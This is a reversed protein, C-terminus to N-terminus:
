PSVEDVRYNVIYSQLGTAPDRGPLSCQLAYSGWNTTNMPGFVVLGGGPPVVATQTATKFGDIDHASLECAGSVTAHRNRMLLKVEALRAPGGVPEDRVIPCFVTISTTGTNALASQNVASRRVPDNSSQPLCNVGAYGKWDRGPAGGAHAASAASIAALAACAALRSIRHSHSTAQM